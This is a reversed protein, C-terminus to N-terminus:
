RLLKAVGRPPQGAFAMEEDGLRESPTQASFNLGCDSVKKVRKAGISLALPQARAESRASGQWTRGVVTRPNPRDRKPKGLVM